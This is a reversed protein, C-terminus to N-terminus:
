ELINDDILKQVNERSIKGEMPGFAGTNLSAAATAFKACDTLSRGELLACLFAADFSDGAGTADVPPVAYVGFAVREERTYIICGKKGNKLAIIKMGPYKAFMDRVAEEIDDKGSLTRLESKGPMFVSTMSIIEDILKGSEPDKMLEPRVNPDFSVEAGCEKADKATDIIRKGFATDAMVSCGMIHFFKLGCLKDKEPSPTLVAPTNGIHFIFKREGDSFYTVFACGTSIRDNVIVNSCDVGDGGLRNLLCKGFDDDGVGGVIAAKHGLRAATDIFIAPAGSPYPGKFVGARDLPQDVGDRMIEVIMEGMTMIENM